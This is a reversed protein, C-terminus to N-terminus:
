YYYYHPSEVRYVTTTQTLIFSNSQKATTGTTLPHETSETIFQFLSRWWSSLIGPSARDLAHTQPREGASITTEIGASPMSTQRNHTKHTTPYLNRRRASWEDLPTRGFTYRRTHDLFRLLSSATDRTPGCRWVFFFILMMIIRLNTGEIHTLNTGERHAYQRVQSHSLSDCKKAM